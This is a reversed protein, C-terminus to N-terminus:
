REVADAFIQLRLPMRHDLRVFFDQLHRLHCLGFHSVAIRETAGAASAPAFLPYNLDFSRFASQSKKVEGSLDRVLWAPGTAYRVSNALDSMASVDPVPQLLRAM